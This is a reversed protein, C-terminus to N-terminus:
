APQLMTFYLHHIDVAKFSHPITFRVYPVALEDPPPMAVIDHVNLLTKMRREDTIPDIITKPNRSKPDISLVNQEQLCPLKQAAQFFVDFHQPYAYMDDLAAM